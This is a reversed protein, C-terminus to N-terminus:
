FRLVYIWGLLSSKSIESVTHNMRLNAKLSSPKRCTYWFVISGLPRVARDAKACANVPESIPQTQGLALKVSHLLVKMEVM